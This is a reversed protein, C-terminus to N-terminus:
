YTLYSSQKPFKDLNPLWNSKLESRRSASVRVHGSKLAGQSEEEESQRQKGRQPRPAQLAGDPTDNFGTVPAHELVNDYAQAARTVQQM